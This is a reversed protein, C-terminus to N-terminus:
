IKLEIKLLGARKEATATSSKSKKEAFRPEREASVADLADHLDM